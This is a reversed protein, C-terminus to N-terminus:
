WGGGVMIVTSGRRVDLSYLWALLNDVILKAAPIAPIITNGIKPDIAATIIPEIAFLFVAPKSRCSVAEIFIFAFTPRTNPHNPTPTIIM